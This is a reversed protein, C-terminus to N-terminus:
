PYDPVSRDACACWAMGDQVVTGAGCACLRDRPDARPGSPEAALPELVHIAQRLLKCHDVTATLEHRLAVAAETYKEHTRQLEADTPYDRESM